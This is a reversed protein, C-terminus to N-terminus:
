NVISTTLASMKAKNGTKASIKAKNLIEDTFIISFTSKKTMRKIVNLFNEEIGPKSLSKIM